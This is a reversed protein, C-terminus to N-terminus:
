KRKLWFPMALVHPATYGNSIKEDAGGRQKAHAVCVHSTNRNESFNPPSLM